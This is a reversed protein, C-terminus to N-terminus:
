MTKDPGYPKKRGAGLRVLLKQCQRVQLAVNFERKLYQSLLEGTWKKSQYGQELPPTLIVDKVISLQNPTLQRKRGPIIKDDLRNLDFGDKVRVSRVWRAITHPSAGLLRAVESCNHEPHKAVLLVTYLKTFLRAEKSQDLQHEIASVLAEANRIKLHNM